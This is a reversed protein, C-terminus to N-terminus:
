SPNFYLGPSHCKGRSFASTNIRSLLVDPCISEHMLQFARPIIPGMADAGTYLGSQQVDVFTQSELIGDGALEGYVDAPNLAGGPGEATKALGSVPTIDKVNRGTNKQKGVLEEVQKVLTTKKWTLDVPVKQERLFAQLEAIPLAFLNGESWLEWVRDMSPAAVVKGDDTKSLAESALGRTSAFTVASIAPTAQQALYATQINCLIVRRTLGWFHAEFVVILFNCPAM